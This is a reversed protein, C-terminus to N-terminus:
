VAGYLGFTPVAEAKVRRDRGRHDGSVAGYQLAVLATEKEFRWIAAPGHDPQEARGRAGAGATELGAMRLRLDPRADIGWSRAVRRRGAAPRGGAGVATPRPTVTAPRRALRRWGAGGRM